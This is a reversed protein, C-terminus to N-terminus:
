SLKNWVKKIYICADIYTPLPKIGSIPFNEIARQTQIGYYVNNAIQRDGMSDREVRFDSNNTM